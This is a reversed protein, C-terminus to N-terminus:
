DHKHQKGIPEKIRNHVVSTSDGRARAIAPIETPNPNMNLSFKSYKKMTKVDISVEVRSRVMPRRIRKLRWGIRVPRAAVRKAFDTQAEEWGFDIDIPFSAEQIHGDTTICAKNSKPRINVAVLGSRPSGSTMNMMTDTEIMGM